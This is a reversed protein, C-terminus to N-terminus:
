SQIQRWYNRLLYVLFVALSIKDLMVPETLLRMKNKNARSANLLVM